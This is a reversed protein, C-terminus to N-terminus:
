APSILSHVSVARIGVSRLSVARINVSHVDLYCSSVANWALCNCNLTCGPFRSCSPESCPEFLPPSIPCPLNHINHLIVTSLSYVTLFFEDIGLVLLDALLVVVEICLIYMVVFSTSFAVVLLQVDIALVSDNFGLSVGHRGSFISSLIVASCVYTTSWMMCWTQLFAFAFYQMRQYRAVDVSPMNSCGSYM